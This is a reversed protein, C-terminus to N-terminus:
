MGSHVSKWPTYLCICMHGPAGVGRPPSRPGPGVPDRLSVAGPVMLHMAGAGAGV